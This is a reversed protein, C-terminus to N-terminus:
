RLMLVTSFGGRVQHQYDTIMFSPETETISRTAEFSASNDYWITQPCLPQTHTHTHKHARARARARVRACWPFKTSSISCHCTYSIEPLKEQGGTEQYPTSLGRRIQHPEPGALYSFTQRVLTKYSPGIVMRTSKNWCNKDKWKPLYKYTLNEQVFSM